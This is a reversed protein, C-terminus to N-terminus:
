ASFASFLARLEDDARAPNALTRAIEDRLLERYRKRLRHVAVRVAGEELGLAKGAAAHSLAGKGATLFAKLEAFHKGRGERECEARLREIATRVQIDLEAQASNRREGRMAFIWGTMAMAITISILAVAVMLEIMTFGFGNSTVRRM